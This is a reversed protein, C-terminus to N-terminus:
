CSMRALRLIGQQLKPDHLITKLIFANNQTFLDLIMDDSAHHGGIKCREFQVEEITESIRNNSQVMADLLSYSKQQENALKREEVKRRSRKSKASSKYQSHLQERLAQGVKERALHDGVEYWIGDIEKVFGGNPSAERVWNVVSSVVLSKYLRSGAQAYAERSEEIRRRFQINGSHNKADKGRACIVDFPGHRFFAGLKKMAETNNLGKQSKNCSIM